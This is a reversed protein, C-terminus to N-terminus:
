ISLNYLTKNIEHLSSKLSAIQQKVSEESSEYQWVNLDAELANEDREQSAMFVDTSYVDTLAKSQM